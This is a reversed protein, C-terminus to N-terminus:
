IKSLADFAKASRGEMIVTIIVSLSIAVFIGVCELFDSERGTFSRIINVSLAIIGSMILMIIM